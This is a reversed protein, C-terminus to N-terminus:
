SKESGGLHIDLLVFSWALIAAGSVQSLPVSIDNFYQPLLAAFGLPMTIVGILQPLNDDRSFLQYHLVSLVFFIIGASFLGLLVCSIYLEVINLDFTSQLLPGLDVLLAMILGPLFIKGSMDDITKAYSVTFTDTM